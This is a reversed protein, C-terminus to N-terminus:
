QIWETWQTVEHFQKRTDSKGTIFISNSESNIESRKKKSNERTKKQKYKYNHM